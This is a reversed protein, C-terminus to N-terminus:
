NDVDVRFEKVDSDELRTVRVVRGDSLVFDHVENEYFNNSQTTNNNSGDIVIAYPYGVTPNNVAIGISSGLYNGKSDVQQAESSVDMESGFLSDFISMFDDIPDTNIHIGYSGTMDPFDRITSNKDIYSTNKNEPDITAIKIQYTKNQQILSNGNRIVMRTDKYFWGRILKVLNM